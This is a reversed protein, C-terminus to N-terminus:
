QLVWIECQEMVTTVSDDMGEPPYKYKKLLRKVIMKMRALASKRKQLDITKNKRLEDTFEKTIQILQENKYFDKIAAPKTLADYFALDELTLGLEDGAKQGQLIDQAIKLLEHIVEENSLLGNLYKNMALQMLNSFKESKIINTRRYVRVQEAILRKLLEVALNKQDMKSIEDLVKPNFISVEKSCDAFLTQVGESKVFAKLQENIKENIEQLSIKKGTGSNIIRNITVRIAEFFAAEIRDNENVISACLSLLQKLM